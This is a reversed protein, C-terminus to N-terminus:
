SIEEMLLFDSLQLDKIGEVSAGSFPDLTILFKPHNDPIELLNGFERDVTETFILKIALHKYIKEANVM